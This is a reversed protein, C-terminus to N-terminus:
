PSPGMFRGMFLIEHALDDQIFYLFPRDITLETPGGIPASIAQLIGATAAAAETGKEGVTVNAEHIVGSAHLRQDAIGSLDAKNEDFLEVIGLTTLSQVLDFQSDTDWRPLGLNVGTPLLSDEVARLFQGNLGAEVAAFRGEDPVVVLMSAGVYPIRVARWGNGAAYDLSDDKRMMPVQATGGGLLDFSWGEVTQDPDFEVMWKAKMYIANVLVLRTMADVADPSLLQPIRSNTRQSVWGNIAQRAQETADAFDVTQVGAGYDAAMTELFPQKLKFDRQAFLANATSLTLPTSGTALTALGLDLRNRSAHWTAGDDPIALTSKIQAATDGGAGAYVMSLATSISYPSLFLNGDQSGAVQLYLRSAFDTDADVLQALQDASVTDAPLRATAARVEQVPGAGLLDCGSILAAVVALHLVALWRGRVGRVIRCPAPYLCSLTLTWSLRSPVRTPRGPEGWSCRRLANM